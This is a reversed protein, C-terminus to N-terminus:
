DGQWWSALLLKQRQGTAQQVYEADARAADVAAVAARDWYPVLVLVDEDAQGERHTRGLLQEWAEGNGLPELVLNTSWAQLNTGM